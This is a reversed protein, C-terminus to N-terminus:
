NSRLASRGERRRAADAGPPWRGSLPDARAREHREEAKRLQGIRPRLRRCLRGAREDARGARLGEVLGTREPHAASIRHRRRCAHGAARRHAAASFIALGPPSSSARRRRAPRGAGGPRAAFGIAIGAAEGQRRAEELAAEDGAPPAAAAPPPPAAAQRKVQALERTLRVVQAKLVMPDSAKTEQEVAALREKLESLDLAKLASGSARKEGRKPTRSSDFTAKPPFSATKLVGRGPIWVVGQGRQMTPLSALIERGQAKDAQGEIWAGIADRDQSSTLKFAILGDVQSLVDKSLVAPRQSILWPIFGKIRGRRVIEEMRSQLM